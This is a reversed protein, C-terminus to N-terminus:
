QYKMKIAKIVDTGAELVQLVDGSKKAEKYNSEAKNIAFSVFDLTPKNVFTQLILWSKRVNDWGLNRYGQQRVKKQVEKSLLNIKQSNRKQAQRYNLGDLQVKASM